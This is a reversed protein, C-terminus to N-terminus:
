NQKFESLNFYQYDKIAFVNNEEYEQLDNKLINDLLYQYIIECIADFVVVHHLSLVFNNYKTLITQQNKSLIMKEFQQNLYSLKNKFTDKTKNFVFQQDRDKGLYKLAIIEDKVEYSFPVSKFTYVCNNFPNEKILLLFDFDKSAKELQKEKYRQQLSIYFDVIEGNNFLSVLKKKIEGLLHQKNEIQFQSIHNDNM